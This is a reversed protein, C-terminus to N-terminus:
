SRVMAAYRRFCVSLVDLKWGSERLYIVTLDCGNGRVPALVTHMTRWHEEDFSALIDKVSKLEENLFESAEQM